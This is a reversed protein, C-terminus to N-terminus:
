STYIHPNIRCPTSLGDSSPNDRVGAPAPVSFVKTQADTERRPTEAESKKTSKFVKCGSTLLALTFVVLIIKKM